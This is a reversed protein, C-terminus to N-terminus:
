SCDSGDDNEWSGTITEQNAICRHGFVILVIILPLILWKWGSLDSWFMTGFWYLGFFIFGTWFFSAAGTLMSFKLFSFRFYGCALYTPLRLGPILRVMLVTMIMRRKLWLGAQNIRSSNKWRGLFSWKELASGLGFLGLDGTYIGFFLALFALEAGIVGDASLLAATVIAADELIYTGLIILLALVWPQQASEMWIQFMNAPDKLLDIEAVM